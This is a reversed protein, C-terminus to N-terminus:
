LKSMLGDYGSKLQDLSGEFATKNENFTDEGADKLSNFNDDLKVKNEKLNSFPEELPKRVMEPLSNKKTELDSLKTDWEAVFKKAGDLYEEKITEFKSAVEEVKDGAVAEVKETANDIKKEAANETKEADGSCGFALFAMVAMIAFVIYLKKKM